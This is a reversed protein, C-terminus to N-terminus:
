YKNNLIKNLYISSKLDLILKKLIPDYIKINIKNPYEKEM